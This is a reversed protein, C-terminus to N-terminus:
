IHILSLLWLPALGTWALTLFASVLLLKDAIPDLIKGLRSTWGFTKALWGDLGDSVGAAGFLALTWVYEAHLLAYIVPAILVIRAVCIANPLWRLSM